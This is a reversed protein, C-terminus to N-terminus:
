KQTYGVAFSLVTIISLLQKKSFKQGVKQHEKQHFNVWKKSFKQSNTTQLV